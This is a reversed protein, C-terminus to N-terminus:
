KIEHKNNKKLIYILSSSRKKNALTRLFFMGGRVLGVLGALFTKKNQESLM